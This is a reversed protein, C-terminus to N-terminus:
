KAGKSPIYYSRQTTSCARTRIRDDRYKKPDAVGVGGKVRYDVGIEVQVKAFSEAICQFTHNWTQALTVGVVGVIHLVSINLSSMFFLLLNANRTWSIRCRCLAYAACCPFYILLNHKKEDYHAFFRVEFLKHSIFKYTLTQFFIM